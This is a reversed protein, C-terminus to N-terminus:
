DKSKINKVPEIAVIQINPINEKLFKSTGMLSGSSGLRSSSLRNVM